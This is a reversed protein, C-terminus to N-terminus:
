ALERPCHIYLDFLKMRSEKLVRTCRWDDAAAVLRQRVLPASAGVNILSCNYPVHTTDAHKSFPPRAERGDEMM